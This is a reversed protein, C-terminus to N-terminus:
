KILEFLEKSSSIIGRVELEECIQKQIKMQEEDKSFMYFCLTAILTSNDKEKLNM